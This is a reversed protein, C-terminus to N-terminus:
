AWEFNFDMAFSQVPCRSNKEIENSHPILILALLCFGKKAEGETHSFCDAFLFPHADSESKDMSPYLPFGVAANKTVSSTKVQFKTGGRKNEGM